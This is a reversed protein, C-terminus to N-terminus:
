HATKLNPANNGQELSLMYVGGLAARHINQQLQTERNSHM